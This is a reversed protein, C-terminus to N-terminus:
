RAPEIMVEAAYLMTRDLDRGAWEILTEVNPTVVGEFEVSGNVEIRIPRTLDFADPSVLVRFSRVRYALVNVTNDSRTAWVMGSGLSAAWAGLTVRGMDGRIEGVEDITIWHVRPYLDASETGWVLSEPHPDRVHEGVFREINEAEYPWWSTDHGGPQPHFEYTVNAANFISLWPRVSSVPYFRDQEGNVIFLPRNKLNGVHLEGDARVAPNMLVEPSGIFPLFSSWPTPDRFALFYVGTGGDSVGMVHVRNEDINYVRKLEDLVGHLNEVQRAQWWPSESWSLPAVLFSGDDAFRDLNRAWGGGAGPDSRSIGGHLYFRVPYSRSPDYGDPVRLMYRHLFGDRNTRGRELTGGPVDSGYSRGAALADYVSQFPAGSCVIQAAAESRVEQGTASWWSALDVELASATTQAQAVPPGSVLLALTLLPRLARDSANMRADHPNLGSKAVRSRDTHM